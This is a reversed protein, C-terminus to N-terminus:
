ANYGRFELFEEFSMKGYMKIVDKNNIFEQYEAQYKDKNEEKLREAAEAAEAQEDLIQQREEDSMCLWNVGDKIEELSAAISALLEITQQQANLQSVATKAAKKSYKGAQRARHRM